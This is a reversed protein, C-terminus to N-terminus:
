DRRNKVYRIVIDAVKSEDISDTEVVLDFPKLDEGFEIGYIKKYLKYNERDRVSLIEKCESVAIGDRKSMRVARSEVTGSLWVKIGDRTLWPVPYSTIVVDGRKAKKLLRADVEKDFDSSRKREQLFKMGDGKDWWDEGGPTYGEEVAMEKLVDGGGVMPIGLSEAVQRSVSTKGVAPM